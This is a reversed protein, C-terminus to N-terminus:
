RWTPHGVLEERGSRLAPLEVERPQLLLRRDQDGVGLRELGGSTLPDTSAGTAGTGANTDVAVDDVVAGNGSGGPMQDRRPAQYVVVSVLLAAAAVLTAGALLRLARRGPHGYEHLTGVSAVALDVASAHTANWAGLAGAAGAEQAAAARRGADSPRREAPTKAASGAAERALKAAIGKWLGERALEEAASRHLVEFFGQRARDLRALEARCDACSELHAAVEVASAAELDGGVHLPLRDQVSVCVPDVDRRIDSRPVRPADDDPRDRRESQM